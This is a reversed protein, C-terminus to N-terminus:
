KGDGKGDGAAPTGGAPASSQLFRIADDTLDLRADAYLTDGFNNRALVNLLADDAGIPWLRLVLLVGKKRALEAIAQDLDRVCEAHSRDKELQLREGEDKARSDLAARSAEWQANAAIWEATLKGFGEREMFLREVNDKDKKLASEIGARAAVVDDRMKRWRPYAKLAKEVDIVAVVKAVESAAAESSSPSPAAPEQPSGPPLLSVILVAGLVIPTRAAQRDSRQTTRRRM